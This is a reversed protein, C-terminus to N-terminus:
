HISVSQPHSFTVGNIGIWGNEVYVRAGDTPISCKTGDERTVIAISDKNTYVQLYDVLDMKVLRNMCRNLLYVFGNDYTFVNAKHVYPEDRKEIKDNGVFGHIAVKM